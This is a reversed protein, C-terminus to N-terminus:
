GVTKRLPLKVTRNMREWCDGMVPKKLLLNGHSKIDPFYSLIEPSQTIACEGGKILISVLAPCYIMISSM